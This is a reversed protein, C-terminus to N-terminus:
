QISRAEETSNRAIRKEGSIKNKLIGWRLSRVMLHEGAFVLWFGLLVAYFIGQRMDSLLLNFPMDVFLSLYEVPLNLLSLATGLAMLSRELLAPPRPLLKIRKWFWVMVGIVIPFFVTKMSLWVKTFGGNQNITVLWLDTIKGLHQNIRNTVPLKVNLLYFDHHLSGLEFVPIMSCNYLYEAKKNSNDSDNLTFFIFVEEIDCELKRVETSNALLKWDWEKDGRNRYGLQLEMTIPPQGDLPNDEDYAIDVQLIGILNQM